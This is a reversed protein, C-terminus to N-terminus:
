TLLGPCNGCLHLLDICEMTRGHQNQHTVRHMMWGSKGGVDTVPAIHQLLEPLPMEITEEEEMSGLSPTGDANLEQTFERDCCERAIHNQMVGPNGFSRHKDFVANDLVADALVRRLAYESGCLGYGHVEILMDVVVIGLCGRGDLLLHSWYSGILSDVERDDGEERRVLKLKLRHITGSLLPGTLYDELFLVTMPLAYSQTAQTAVEHDLAYCNVGWAQWESSRLVRRCRNAMSRNVTKLLRLQMLSLHRLVVLWLEAPLESDWPVHAGHARACARAGATGSKRMASLFRGSVWETVGVSQWVWEAVCVRGCGGM